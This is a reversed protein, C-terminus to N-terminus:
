IESGCLFEGTGANTLFTGSVLDYLGPKGDSKRYCPVGNFLVVGSKTFKASFLLGDYCTGTNRQYFFCLPYGLAPANAIDMSYYQGGFKIYSKVGSAAYEIASRVHYKGIEEIWIDSDNAWDGSGFRNSLMFKSTDAGEGRRPLVGCLFFRANSVSSDATGVVAPNGANTYFEVDCEFPIQSLISTTIYQTGTAELYLVQQYASPLEIKKDAFHAMFDNRREVGDNNHYEISSLLNFLADNCEPSIGIKQLVAHGNEDVSVVQGANVAGLHSGLAGINKRGTTRESYKKEQATDYSVAAGLDAKIEEDAAELGKIRQAYPTLVENLDSYLSM